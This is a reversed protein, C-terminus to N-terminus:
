NELVYVEPSPVGSAIAMEEVINHLRRVAPDTVNRDVRTGGLSRAVASGGSRLLLTKFLTGGLIIAAVLVATMVAASGPPYGAHTVRLGFVVLVYVIAVIAVILLIFALVLWRTTRRAAEQRAFFDM